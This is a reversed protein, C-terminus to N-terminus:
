SANVRGTDTTPKPSGQPGLPNANAPPQENKAIVPVEDAPLLDQHRNSPKRWKTPDDAWEERYRGQSDFPGTGLPDNAATSGQNSCGPLLLIVSCFPLLWIVPKM